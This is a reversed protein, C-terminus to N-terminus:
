DPRRLDDRAEIAAGLIPDLQDNIRLSNLRVRHGGESM